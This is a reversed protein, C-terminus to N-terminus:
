SRPAGMREGLEAVACRHWREAQEAGAVGCREGNAYVCEYRQFQDRAGTEPRARDERRAGFREARARIGLLQRRSMLSDVVAFGRVIPWTTRGVGDASVRTVLRSGAGDPSVRFAMVMRVDAGLWREVPSWWALASGPELHRLYGIGSADGLRPEPVWSVLHEASRRRGNDLADYSYWGAGRGLQAIWPWVVDPPAAISVARTMAICRRGAPGDALWGDGPM